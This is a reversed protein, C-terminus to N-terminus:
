FRRRDSGHKLVMFVKGSDELRFLELDIQLM